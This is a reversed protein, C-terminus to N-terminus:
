AESFPNLIQLRGELVQGHHLDETYLVECDAWIASAVILADWVNYGYREAIRMGQIHTDLTIPAVDCIQHLPCLMERIEPFSMGMKRRVVSAFENLVQASIVGGKAIVSEAIDAKVVDASLLYLLVNTDFFAKASAM